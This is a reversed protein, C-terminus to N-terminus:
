GYEKGKQSYIHVTKCRSCRGFMRMQLLWVGVSRSIHLVCYSLDDSAFTLVLKQTIQMNMNDFVRLKCPVNISWQIHHDVMFSSNNPTRPLRKHHFLNLDVRWLFQLDSDLDEEGRDTVSIKTSPFSLYIHMGMFWLKIKGKEM